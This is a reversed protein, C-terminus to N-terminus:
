KWVIETIEHAYRSIEARLMLNEEEGIILKDMRAASRGKRIDPKGADYGIYVPSFCYPKGGNSAPQKLLSVFTSKRLEQPDVTECLEYPSFFDPVSSSLSVLSEISFKKGLEMKKIDRVGDLSSASVLWGTNDHSSCNCDCTILFVNRQNKNWSISALPTECALLLKNHQWSLDTSCEGSFNCVVNKETLYEVDVGGAFTSLSNCWATFFLILSLPKFTAFM